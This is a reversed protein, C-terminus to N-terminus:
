GRGTRSGFMPGQREGRSPIYYCKNRSCKPKSSPCHSDKTCEKCVNSRCAPKSSPCHSDATCQKCVNSHCAPKNPDKCHSDKACEKCDRTGFVDCPGKGAAACFDDAKREACSNDKVSALMCNHMSYCEACGVHPPALDRCTCDSEAFYVGRCTTYDGYANAGETGLNLEEEDAVAVVPSDSTTFFMPGRKPLAEKGRVVQDIAGVDGSKADDDHKKKEQGAPLASSPGLLIAVLAMAMSAYSSRKMTPARSTAPLDFSVGPIAHRV